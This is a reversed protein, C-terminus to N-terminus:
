APPRSSGRRAMLLGAAAVLAAAGVIIIVVIVIVIVDVPPSSGSSGTPTSPDTEQPIADVVVSYTGTTAVGGDGDDATFYFTHNGAGLAMGLLFPVGEGYPGTGLEDRGMRYNVGDIVVEVVPADPGMDVDKFVVTFNFMTLAIHGPADVRAGSLEPADNVPSVTVNLRLVSQSEGDTLTLTVVENLVGDPYFFILTRGDVSGYSSAVSVALQGFPTDIDNFYPALDLQGEVDEVAAIDPVAGWWPPDNVPGVDVVLTASARLDGDSVVIAVEDRLVGEPYLLRFTHGEVAVFPSDTTVTLGEVPTDVDSIYPGLDLSLPEDERAALPPVDAIAPPDNVPVVDVVLTTSAHLDADWVEIVLEDHRVGDPYLLGLVLGGVEIYPSEVRLVLGEMPTDVDFIAPGIDLLYLKDEEVTLPQLSGLVPPDNVPEIVVNFTVITRDEGDSVTLSVVDKTIGEPYLLQLVLGTLQTCPSDSEVSINEIPSDVDRIYLGLDLTWPVDEVGEQTPIPDVAPPDNVPTVNVHIETEDWMAGDSVSLHVTDTLVGNPYLLTLRGRGVTVFASDATINMQDITNDPDSVYPSLVLLYPVGEVAAVDPIPSLIPPDNVPTINVRVNRGVMFVGDSVTLNIVDTWVGEPYLLQLEYGLVSAYSSTAGVMLDEHDTDPDSILPSVDIRELVDETASLDGDLSIAPPYHRTVRFVGNSKYTWVVASDPDVEFNKGTSGGCVLTNGDPLREAGGMASSFFSTPPSATYRWLSDSPGYASGPARDYGGTANLPPVLEEITSYRGEPRSMYSNIGNNFVIINGEGPLGPAIWHGDHGGYIIQDSADGARYALPNGWRYLLDGGKGQGGGTHSAAEETTTNHDVVWIENFHLNTIMVQDLEANYSVANAHQWDPMSNPPYNFDILEPHDKVVGYNAKEPDFDQVLHDVPNWMWVIDGGTTGNPKIEVIPDVLVSDKTNDPDRGMDLAETASYSMVANVLINGNPLPAIDHHWKLNSPPTYDWLVTGDWDLLQIGNSQGGTSGRGRLLTGDALLECTGMTQRNSNWTHLETGNHDILTVKYGGYPAMLTLGKAAKDSDVFMRYTIEDSLTDPTDTGNAGALYSTLPALLMFLFVLIAVAARRSFARQMPEVTYISFRGKIYVAPYSVRLYVFDTRGGGGKLHVPM